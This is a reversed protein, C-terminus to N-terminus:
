GHFAEEHDGRGAEGPPRRDVGDNEHRWEEALVAYVYEDTWEGKWWVSQRHHAERRMGVRQLLAVSRVNRAVCEASIRHVGHATFLLSVVAGLAETAYGRGQADAALTFGVTAQRPEDGDVRVAADGVLRGGTEVAVQLWAGPQAFRVDGMEAILARASDVPYPAEWSQYHAQVPDSRYAALAAADDDTMRRLVLRETVAFIQAVM